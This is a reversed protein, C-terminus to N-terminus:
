TYISLIREGPELNMMASQETNYMGRASVGDFITFYSLKLQAEKKRMAKDIDSEIMSMLKAVRKDYSSIGEITQLSYMVTTHNRADFHRLIEKYSMHMFKRLMYMM